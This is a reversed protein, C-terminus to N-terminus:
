ARALGVERNDLSIDALDAGLARLAGPFDAYGRALHHTGTIVSEGPVALAALTLVAAARLDTAHVPGTATRPSWPGDVTLTPGHQCVAVGMAALGPLYGFRNAWVTETIRSRGSARAALLALFPQNDSFVGHSAVTVETPRLQQAPHVALEGPYLEMRVGLQDLVEFEPALARCARPLDAALVHLVGHGLVAGACIWTMVEILDPILVHDVARTLDQGGNGHVRLSGAPTSDIDAGMARLVGVLDTVDPKPYPHQLVTVGHAMVATLLAMKTAGSYLPGTRLSRNATYELLDIRCARLREATVTLDGTESVTARAGFRQFVDIYQRLPRRGRPDDGIQCGGRAPVRAEGFRGLLAPLLYVSGHIQEAVDPDFEAGTLTRAHFIRAEGVGTVTGGLHRFLETLVRTETIQPCNDIRVPATGCLAAAAVSVLSHKFGAPRVSGALGGGGRVVLGQDALLGRFPLM